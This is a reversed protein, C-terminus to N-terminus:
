VIETQLFHTSHYECNEWMTVHAFNMEPLLVILSPLGRSKGGHKAIMVMHKVNRHPTHAKTNVLVLIENVGHHSVVGVVDDFLPAALFLALCGRWLPTRHVTTSWYDLMYCIFWYSHIIDPM